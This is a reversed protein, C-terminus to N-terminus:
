KRRACCHVCTRVVPSCIREEGERVEGCRVSVGRGRKSVQTCLLMRDSEPLARAKTDTGEGGEGDEGGGNWGEGGAGDKTNFRSSHSGEDVPSPPM